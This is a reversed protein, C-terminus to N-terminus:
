FRARDRQIISDGPTNGTTASPIQIRHSALLVGPKMNSLERGKEFKDVGGLREFFRVRGAAVM